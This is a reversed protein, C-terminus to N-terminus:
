LLFRGAFLVSKDINKAKKKIIIDVKRLNAKYFFMFIAFGILVPLIYSDKNKNLIAFSFLSFGIGIFLSSMLAKKLYKKPTDKIKAIRLNKKLDPNQSLLFDYFGM